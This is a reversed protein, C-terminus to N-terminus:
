FPPAAAPPGPESENGAADFSRLRYCHHDAEGVPEDSWRSRDAPLRSLERFAGEGDVCGASREVILGALDPSPNPEWSLTIRREERFIEPSGPVPPPFRDVVELPIEEGRAGRLHDAGLLAAARYLQCAGPSVTDEFLIQPDHLLGAPELPEPEGELRRFIASGRLNELAVVTPDPDQPLLVLRIKGDAAERAVIAPPPEIPRPDLRGLNSMESLEGGARVVLAYVLRRRVAGPSRFKEPIVDSWVLRPGRTASRLESPGLTGIKTAISLFEKRESSLGRSRQRREPDPGEPPSGKEGKGRRASPAAEEEKPIPGLVSELRWVEVGEVPSLPRGATTREPWSAVLV